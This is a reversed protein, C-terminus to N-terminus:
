NVSLAEFGLPLLLVCGGVKPANVEIPLSGGGSLVQIFRLFSPQVLRTRGGEEFWTM